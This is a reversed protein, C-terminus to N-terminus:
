SIENDILTNIGSQNIEVITVKGVKIQIITPTPKGQVNTIRGRLSQYSRTITAQRDNNNPGAINVAQINTRPVIPCFLSGLAPSLMLGLNGLHTGM